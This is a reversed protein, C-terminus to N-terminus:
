NQESAALARFLEDASRARAAVGGAEEAGLGIAEWGEPTKRLRFSPRLHGCRTLYPALVGQGNTRFDLDFPSGEAALTLRRRDHETVLDGPFRVISGM